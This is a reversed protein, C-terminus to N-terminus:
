RRTQTRRKTIAKTLVNYKNPRNLYNKYNNFATNSVKRAEPINKLKRYNITGTNNVAYINKNKVSNWFKEGNFTIKRANSLKSYVEGIYPALISNKVFNFNNKNLGKNTVKILRSTNKGRWGSEGVAIDTLAQVLNEICPRGGVMQGFQEIFSQKTMKRFLIKGRIIRSAEKLQEYIVPLYKNKSLGSTNIHCAGISKTIKNKYAAISMKKIFKHHYYSEALQIKEMMNSEYKFGAERIIKIIYNISQDSKLNIKITNGIYKNISTPTERIIIPTGNINKEGSNYRVNYKKSGNSSKYYKKGNKNRYIKLGSVLNRLKTNENMNKLENFERLLDRMTRFTYIKEGSRGLVYRGGNPGQYIKRYNIDEEGTNM